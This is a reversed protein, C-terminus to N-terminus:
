RRLSADVEPKAAKLQGAILDRWTRDDAGSFVRGNIFFSPTGSLGLHKAEALDSQVAPAEQGSDLCKDFSATDLKLTRAHQKVAAAGIQKSDFLLDHFEWFKGQQGACRAAEAAKPADPHMPLPFDKFAVAMKSGFEQQLRKLEPNVKQCYPCEYDAFEVVLVPANRSGQLPTNKLAVEAKPPALEVIM